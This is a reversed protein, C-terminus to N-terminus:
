APVCLTRNIDEKWLIGAGRFITNYALIRFVDEYYEMDHGGTSVRYLKAKCLSACRIREYHYHFAMIYLLKTRIWFDSTLHLMVLSFIYKQLLTTQTALNSCLFTKLHRRLHWRISLHARGCMYQLMNAIDKLFNKLCPSPHWICFFIFLFFNHYLSITTM